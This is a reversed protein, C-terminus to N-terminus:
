ATDRLNQDVPSPKHTSQQCKECWIKSGGWDSYAAGTFGRKGCMSCKELYRRKFRQWPHFQIRWHHIHWRPHRYWPRLRRMIYAIIITAFHNCREDKSEVGYKMVVEGHLSDTPNEAFHIIDFLNNKMFRDCQRRGKKTYHGGHKWMFYQWAAAHFMNIVVGITSFQSYGAENFWYNNKFNFEFEKKVKDVLDKPLHRQRMFWGCSDDTGDKEPDVHWITIFPSRYHGNKKEKKGLYIEHAVCQPDHM